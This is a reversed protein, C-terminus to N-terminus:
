QKISRLVRLLQDVLTVRTVKQVPTLTHPVWRLHKMVFELTRTLHQHVTTRPICTLKVLELVSSFLQQQLANLIADDIIITLTEEPNEIPIDPM